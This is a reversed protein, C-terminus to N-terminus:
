SRLNQRLIERQRKLSNNESKLRINIQQLRNRKMELSEVGMKLSKKFRASNKLNQRRRRWRKLESACDECKMELNSDTRKCEIFLQKHTHFDPTTNSYLIDLMENELITNERRLTSIFENSKVEELEIIEVEPSGFASFDLIDELCNEDSSSSSNSNRSSQNRERPFPTMMIKGESSESKKIKEIKPIERNWRAIYLLDHTIRVRREQSNFTVTNERKEHTFIFLCVFRYQSNSIVTRLSRNQSVAPQKM